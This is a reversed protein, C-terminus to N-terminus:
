LREVVVFGHTDMYEWMETSMRCGNYEAVLKENMPQGRHCCRKCFNFEANFDAVVVRREYSRRRIRYFLKKNKHGVRECKIKRNFLEKFWRKVM